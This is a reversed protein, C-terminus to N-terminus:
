SEVRSHILDFLPSLGDLVSFASYEQGMARLSSLVRKGYSLDSGWVIRPIVAPIRRIWNALSPAEIDPPMAGDILLIDHPPSLSRLLPPTDMTLVVVRHPGYRKVLQQEFGAAQSLVIIRTPGPVKPLQETTREEQPWMERAEPSLAGRSGTPAEADILLREIRRIMAQAEHSQVKGLLTQRLPGGIFQMLEERDDPVTRGWDALATMLITAALNAPIREELTERLLRLSAPESM